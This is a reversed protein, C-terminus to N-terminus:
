RILTVDGKYHWISGDSLLLEAIVVYVGPLCPKANFNGDWGLNKQGSDINYAQFVNEAWRDFVLLKIVKEIGRTQPIYFVDNDMNSGPRFMNPISKDIDNKVKVLVDIKETCLGGIDYVLTYYANVFPRVWLEPCNSCLLSDRKFWSLTATGTPDTSLLPQLLISDGFKITVIEDIDIQLNSAPPITVTKEQICGLSDTVKITYVGSSFNTFYLQEGKDDGNIVINYPAIGNLEKIHIVGNIIGPCIPPITDINLITFQQPDDNVSIVTDLVCGNLLNTLSFQYHGSKNVEISYDSIKRVINGDNTVWLASFNSIDLPSKVDLFVQRETCQIAGTKKIDAEPVLTDLGVEIIISDKCKYQNTVLLIFKGSENTAIQAQNYILGSPSHWEYNIGIEPSTASLRAMQNTCTITDTTFDFIPPSKNIGVYFSKIESACGNVGAIQITYNGTLDTVPNALNHLTSNAFVWNYLKIPQDSEVKLEISSSDCPLLLTDAIIVSPMKINEVVEFTEQVKCGNPASIVLTYTGPVFVKPNRINSAFLQPGTWDYTLDQTEPIVGINVKGKDCTLTDLFTTYKPLDNDSLVELITTDSCFNQSTVIIQYTGAKDIDMVGSSSNINNLGPGNWNYQLGTQSSVVGITVLKKNCSLTDNIIENIIPAMVDAQVEVNGIAICGEQNTFTFSYNGVKNTTVSLQGDLIQIPNNANDWVLTKYSSTPSISINSLSDKCNIVTSLTQFSPFVRNELVEITISKTCNNKSTATATYQGPRYVTIPNGTINIPSWMIEGKAPDYDTELTILSDLCTITDFPLISFNPSLTDYGVSFILDSKCGNPAIGKLTYEGGQYAYVTTGDAVYGAPGTWSFVTGPINSIGMMPFSDQKCKILEFQKDLIPIADNNIVKISDTSTCNKNNTYTFYYTGVTKVFPSQLTSLFSPGTYTISIIDTNTLVIQVSDRTCNLEEVSISPTTYIRDDVIEVEEEDTCGTISNTVTVTYTGSATVLPQAINNNILGPGQWAYSYIVKDGILKIAITDEGCRLSDSILDVDPIDSSKFINIIEKGLCGNQAIVDVTYLGEKKAFPSAQDSQFGFPGSWHTKTLPINSTLQLQVSDKLCSISDVSITLLPVLTDKIIEFQATSTCGTEASTVTVFYIGSFSIEPSKLTSSFLPGQWLYKEISHDTILDVKVSTTLCDLTDTNISLITPPMINDEVKVDFIGNCGNKIDTMRLTYTGAAYVEVDKSNVFLSTVGSWDYKFVRTSDHVTIIKATDKKCDLTDVIFTPIEFLKDEAIYISDTVTCGNDGTVTLYYYGAQWVKIRLADQIFSLGDKSSWLMISANQSISATIEVTDKVCTITDSAFTIVPFSLDPYIIKSITDKCTLEPTIGTIELFYTGEKIADIIFDDNKGLLKGDNTFWNFVLNQVTTGVNEGVLGVTNGSCSISDRDATIKAVIDVVRLDLHVLSDCAGNEIIINYIGPNDYKRNDVEFSQGKCVYETLYTPTSNNSIVVTMCETGIAACAGIEFFYNNLTMENYHTGLSPITSPSQQKSIQSGCITYVGPPYSRLDPDTTYTIITSDKFIINSYNYDNTNYENNPFTKDLSFLLSGDGECAMLDVNNIVGPQLLCEGCYVGQDQCFILQANLLNGKGEDEYDICRLTWTGNVTGFNFNELNGQYPYYQGTYTNLNQWLQDNEWRDLFGLDPAAVAALPVFTVDWTILQTNTAVIDGGVLTIKQGAPSILEVFLEKMFPHKFKLKVACLGQASTALDNNSAGNVLISVNTTDAAENALDEIPYAKKLGCQAHLDFFMM